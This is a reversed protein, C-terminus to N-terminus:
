GDLEKTLSKVNLATNAEIYAMEILYTVMPEDISMSLMRLEGLMQNIYNLKESKLCTIEPDIELEEDTTLNTKALDDEIFINQSDFNQQLKTQKSSKVM